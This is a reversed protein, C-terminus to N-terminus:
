FPVDDFNGHEVKPANGSGGGVAFVDLIGYTPFNNENRGYELAYEYKGSIKNFITKLLTNYARYTTFAIEVGSDLSRLFQNAIHLKFAVDVIQNMYIRQGSLEGALIDMRCSLMPLGKKSQKLTLDMVKVEYNGPPVEVREGSAGGNKEIDAIDHSLTEPNFEADFQDFIDQSM